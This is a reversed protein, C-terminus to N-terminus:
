QRVSSEEGAQEPDESLLVAPTNPEIVSDSHKTARITLCKCVRARITPQAAVRRLHAGYTGHRDSHHHVEPRSESYKGITFWTLSRLLAQVSVPGDPNIYLSRNSGELRHMCGEKGDDVGVACVCQGLVLQVCLRVLHKGLKDKDAESAGRQGTSSSKLVSAVTM